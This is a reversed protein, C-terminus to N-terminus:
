FIEVFGAVLLGVRGSDEKCTDLESQDRLENGLLREQHLVHFFGEM